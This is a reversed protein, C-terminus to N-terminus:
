RSMRTNRNKGNSARNETLRRPWSTVGEFNNTKKVNNTKKNRDSSVFSRVLAKIGELIGKM